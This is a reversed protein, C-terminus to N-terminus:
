SMATLIADRLNASTAYGGDTMVKYKGNKHEIMVSSQASLWNIIKNAQSLEQSIIETIAGCTHLKERIVISEPRSELPIPSGPVEHHIHRNM